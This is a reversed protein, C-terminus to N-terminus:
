CDNKLCEDFMHSMWRKMQQMSPVCKQASCEMLLSNIRTKLTKQKRVRHTIWRSFNHTTFFLFQISFSVLELINVGFRSFFCNVSTKYSSDALNKLKQFLSCLFHMFNCINTTHWIWLTRYKCDDRCHWQHKTFHRSDTSHLLERLCSRGAGEHMTVLHRYIFRLTSMIYSSHSRTTPTEIRIIILRKWVTCYSISFKPTSMIWAFILNIYVCNISYFRMKNIFNKYISHIYQTCIDYILKSKHYYAFAFIEWIINHTHLDLSLFLTFICMGYM